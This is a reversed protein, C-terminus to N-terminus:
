AAGVGQLYATLADVMDSYEQDTLGGGAFSVCCEFNSHQDNAVGVTNGHFVEFNGSGVQGGVTAYSGPNSVKVKDNLLCVNNDATRKMAFFGQQGTVGPTDNNSAASNNNWTFYNAVSIQNVWYAGNALGFPYGNLSFSASRNYVGMTNSAQAWNTGWSSEAGWLIKADDGNAGSRTYGRDITFAIRNNVNNLTLIHSPNKLNITAAQSNHAAHLGIVDMKNWVGASKLALVLTDILAQRTGDPPSSMAALYASTDPDLGPQVEGTSNSVATTGGADNTATVAVSMTEGVDDTTLEYSSATAGSIAAGSRRWQYGYSEIELGNTTWYGTSAVLTEGDELMGTIEPLGTNVPATFSADVVGTQESDVSQNGTPHQATVRCFLRQGIDGATLTYIAATAGAILVAPSGVRYWQYAFGPIDSGPTQWTGTTSTLNQGAVTFGTVIPPTENVPAIDPVVATQNSFAVGTGGENTALVGARIAKGIDLKQVIYTSEEADPIKIGNRQWFYTYGSISGGQANWTGDTVSLEEEVEAAGTLVPAITNVPLPFTPVVESTSDTAVTEGGAGSDGTVTAHFQKGVDSETPTYSSDTEGSLVAGDIYWQYEFSVSGEGYDGDDWEGTNVNLPIGVAPSGGGSITPRVINKAPAVAPRIPATPNSYFLTEGEDNTGTVKVQIVRWVDDAEIEYSDGVPTGAVPSGDSYVWEVDLTVDGGHGDWIGQTFTITDGPRLNLVPLIFGPEKVEPSQSVVGPIDNAPYETVTDGNPNTVTVVVTIPGVYSGGGPDFSSETAGSIPQGNDMWQYTIGGSLISGDYSGGVVSISTGDTVVVPPELVVPFLPPVVASTEATMVFTTGLFNQARVECSIKKGLLANTVTLTPTTEGSLFEGDAKWRYSFQISVVQNNWKGLVVSLIQNVQPGGAVIPATYYFPPGAAPAVENSPLSLAVASGQNNTATVRIQLFQTEQYTTPVYNLAVAGPIEAGNVMWQYDFSTIPSGGSDWVGGSAASNQGVIPTGPIAPRTRVFPAVTAQIRMGNSVVTKSGLENTATVACTIVDGVDGGVVTYTPGTEGSIAVGNNMWQRWYTTVLSTPYWDGFSSLTLQQGTYPSGTINPGAGRLQPPLPVAPQVTSSMLERKHRYHRTLWWNLAKRPTRM